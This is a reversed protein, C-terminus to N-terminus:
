LASLEKIHRVIGPTGLRAYLEEAWVYCPPRCTAHRVQEPPELFVLQVPWLIGAIYPLDTFRLVNLVEIAPGTGDAASYGTSGTGIEQAIDGRCFM